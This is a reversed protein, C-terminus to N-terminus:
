FGEGNLMIVQGQAGEFTIDGLVTTGDLEIILQEQSNDPAKIVISAVTCGTLISKNSALGLANFTTAVAALSGAIRTDGLVTSGDLKVSGSIKLSGFSGGQARMSGSHNVAGYVTVNDLTLSGSGSLSPITQNALNACGSFSYAKGDVCSIASRIM